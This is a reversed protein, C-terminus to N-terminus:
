LMRCEANEESDQKTRRKGPGASEMTRTIAGSRFAQRNPPGVDGVLTSKQDSKGLHSTLM